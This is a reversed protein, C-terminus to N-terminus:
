IKGSQNKVFVNWFMEHKRNIIVTQGIELHYNDNWFM